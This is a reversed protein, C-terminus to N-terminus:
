VSDVFIVWVVGLLYTPLAELQDYVPYLHVMCGALQTAAVFATVYYVISLKSQNQVYAFGHLPVYGDPYHFIMGSILLFVILFGSIGALTWDTPNM